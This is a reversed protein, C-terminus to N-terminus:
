VAEVRRCQNVADEIAPLEPIAPHGPEFFHNLAGEFVFALAIFRPWKSVDPAADNTAQSLFRVIVLLEVVDEARGGTLFVALLLGVDRLVGHAPGDSTIEAGNQGAVRNMVAGQALLRALLTRRELRFM